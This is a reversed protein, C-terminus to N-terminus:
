SRAQSCSGATSDILWGHSLPSNLNRVNQMVQVRSRLRDNIAVQFRCVDHDVAVVISDHQDIKSDCAPYIFLFLADGGHARHTVSRWFQETSLRVRSDINVAEACGHKMQGGPGVWLIIWQQNEVEGLIRPGPLNIGRERGLHLPNQHPCDLVLGLM